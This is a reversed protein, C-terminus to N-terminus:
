QPCVFRCRRLPLLQRTLYCASAARQHARDLLWWLLLALSHPVSPSWRCCRKERIAEGVRSARLGAPRPASFTTSASLHRPDGVAGAHAGSASISAAQPCRATELSSSASVGHTRAAHRGGPARLRVVTRRLARSWLRSARLLSVADSAVGAEERCGSRRRGALGLRSSSVATAHPAEGRCRHLRVRRGDVNRQNSM